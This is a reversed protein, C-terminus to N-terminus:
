KPWVLVVAMAWSGHQQRGGHGIWALGKAVVVKCGSSQSFLHVLCGEVEGSGGVVVKCEGDQGFFQTLLRGM